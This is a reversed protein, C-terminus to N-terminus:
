QLEEMCPLCDFGPEGASPKPLAKCLAAETLADPLGMGAKVLKIDEPPDWDDGGDKQLNAFNSGLLLANPSFGLYRGIYGYFVNAPGDNEQCVGCLTITPVTGECTSPCNPSKPASLPAQHKFDWEGGTKVKSYWWAGAAGLAALMKAVRARVMLNPFLALVTTKAVNHGRDAGELQERGSKPPEGHTKGAHKVLEALGGEVVQRADIGLPLGEDQAIVLATKALLTGVTWKAGTMQAMFWKTAEPGCGTRKAVVESKASQRQLLAGTDLASLASSKREMMQRM